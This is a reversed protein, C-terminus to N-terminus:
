KSSRNYRLQLPIALRKAKSNKNSALRVLFGGLEYTTAGGVVCVVDEVNPCHRFLISAAPPLILTRIQPLEVGSLANGLLEVYPGSIWGIELTHLNPLSELCRAFPVTPFHKPLYM